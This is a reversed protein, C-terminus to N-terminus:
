EESYISQIIARLYNDGDIYIMCELSSTAWVAKAIEANSMFYHVVGGCEYPLANLEDKTYQAGRGNSHIWITITLEATGDTFCAHVRMKEQISSVKIVKLEYGEPLWQPVVRQTIGLETVTDYLKQLGPNDTRFVYPPQSVAREPMTEPEDFAFFAATWRGILTFINEAGLAQPTIVGFVLVLVAAIAVGALKRMPKRTSERGKNFGDNWAEYRIRAESAVPYEPLPMDKERSELIELIGLVVNRDPCEKGLEACLVDDLQQSSLKELEERRYQEKEKM